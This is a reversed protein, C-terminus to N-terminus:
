CTGPFVNQFLLTHELEWYRHPVSKNSFLTPTAQGSSAEPRVQEKLEMLWFQLLL